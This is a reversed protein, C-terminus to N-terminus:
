KSQTLKLKKKQLEKIQLDITKIEKTRRVRKCRLIM